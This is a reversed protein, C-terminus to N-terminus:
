WGAGKRPGLIDGCMLGNEVRASVALHLAGFGNEKRSRTVLRARLKLLKASGGGVFDNLFTRKPLPAPELGRCSACDAGRWRDGGRLPAMSTRTMPCAGGSDCRSSYTPSTM